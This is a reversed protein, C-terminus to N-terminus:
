FYIIQHPCAHVTKFHDAYGYQGYHTDYDYQLNRLMVMGRAMRRIPVVSIPKARPM